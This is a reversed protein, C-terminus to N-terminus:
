KRIITDTVGNRKILTTDHGPYNFQVNIQSNHSGQQSNNQCSALLLCAGIILFPLFGGEIELIDESSLELCNYDNLKM